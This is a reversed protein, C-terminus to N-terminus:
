AKSGELRNGPGYDTYAAGCDYNWNFVNGNM